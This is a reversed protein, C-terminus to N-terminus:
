FPLDDDGSIPIEKFDEDQGSAYAGHAAGSTQGSTSYNNQQYEKKSEAFYVSDAVIEFTKRNNGDKDQYSRTELSGKVAVLQGKHFYKAVFEATSRWAVINIFDTTKEAGPKVYSRDVALCFNVVALDNSVHKLEPEATLRGMLISVNLM